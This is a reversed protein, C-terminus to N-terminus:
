SESKQLMSVLHTKQLIYKEALEVNTYFNDTYLTRGFQLYSGVM